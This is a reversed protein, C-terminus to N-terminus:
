GDLNELYAWLLRFELPHVRLQRLNLPLPDKSERRGEERQQCGVVVCVCEQIQSWHVGVVM